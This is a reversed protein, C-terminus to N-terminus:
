QRDTGTYDVHIGAASISATASLTIPGDFGDTTMSNSWSGKPLSAIEALVAQRSKSCIHDALVDLTDLKSEDMMELLRKCGVDNSAAFSYVDGLTDIPQRTNARIMAMLTENVKGAELIKLFPIYLGEMFVDTGDPGFGIGGIDMLHSTCSFLGVLRGK